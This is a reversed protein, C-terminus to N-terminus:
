RFRREALGSLGQILRHINSGLDRINYGGELVAFTPLNLRAIMQGIRHYCSSSLGLSALPDHEYTDFGASIAVQEFEGPNIRELARELTELYVEDGCYGSLPYNYCNGESERGTGPYLPPRHLSLYVVQEDGLFIDQTGNGHHGDVDLILTRRGTAKIAVAINNFYCFGGLFDKGVHHGPPRMISFSNEEAALIAGGVALLAYEYINPYHPSDFDFFSLTKVSEILMPTHVRLLDAETASGPRLFEYKDKLFNAASKVREPSEPHSRSSFELCKESYIVKM